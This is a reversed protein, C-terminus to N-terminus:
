GGFETSLQIKCGISFRCHYNSFHSSFVNNQPAVEGPRLAFELAALDSRLPPSPVTSQSATAEFQEVPLQKDLKLSLILEFLGFRSIQARPPNAVTDDGGESSRMHAPNTTATVVALGRDLGWRLAM